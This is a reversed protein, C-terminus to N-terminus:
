ILRALLDGIAYAILAAIVGVGLTEIGSVWWRQLSWRSKAIGIGAFACATLAVAVAAAGDVGFIFPILPILGCILFGTFTLAAALWPDRRATGIGHEETLMTEVWLRKNGTIIEVISELVRGDFGKAAFIQRIEEREGEPEINIHREEMRRLRDANDNDAKTGTFNAAAMSFGDALINSAGLILIVRSSLDAGVSGAVIAFTTIAGDIGGYIWDPVYHPRRDAEMRAAIADPAHSHELSRHIM